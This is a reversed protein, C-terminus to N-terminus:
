SKEFEFMPTLGTSDLVQSVCAHADTLVVQAGAEKVATLITFIFRLGSSAMYTLKSCDLTIKEFKNEQMMPFFEKEVEPATISDLSGELFIVVSKKDEQIQIEM